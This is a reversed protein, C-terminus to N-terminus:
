VYVATDTVQRMTLEGRACKLYQPCSFATGSPLADSLIIQVTTGLELRLNRDLSSM